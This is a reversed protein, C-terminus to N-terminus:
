FVSFTTAARAPMGGRDIGSSGAAPRHDAHEFPSTTKDRAARLHRRAIESNGAKRQLEGLTADLLHYHRLTADAVMGRPFPDGGRAM